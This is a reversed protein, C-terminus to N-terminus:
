IAIDDECGRMEGGVESGGSNAADERDTLRQERERSARHNLVTDGLVESVAEESTGWRVIINCRPVKGTRGLTSLNM